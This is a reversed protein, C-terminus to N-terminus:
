AAATVKAYVGGMSRGVRTSARAAEREAAESRVARGARAQPKEGGAPGAPM